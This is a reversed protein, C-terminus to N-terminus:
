WYAPDDFAEVCTPRDDITPIPEGTLSQGLWGQPMSLRRPAQIISESLPQFGAKSYFAPDGYTVAVAASRQKLEDLGYAILARGVGQGQHQTSVAVPALMYVGIPAKFRLRTFFIAGILSDGEYAGLGIIERDDIGSALESALEGILRGEREGESATFVSTFLRTVEETCSKDLIRHNM